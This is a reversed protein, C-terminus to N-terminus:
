SVTRLAFVISALLEQRSFPKRLVSLGGAQLASRGIDPDDSATIFVVPLTSGAAALRRCLEVGSMGGLHIDLVLGIASEDVGACLFDEASAFSSTAYGSAQLLRELSRRMAADDEVVTVLGPAAHMSVM